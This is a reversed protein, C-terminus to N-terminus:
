QQEAFLKRQIWYAALMLVSLNAESYAPLRTESHFCSFINFVTICVLLWDISSWERVPLVGVAALAATLMVAIICLSGKVGFLLMTMSLVLIAAITFATHKNKRM